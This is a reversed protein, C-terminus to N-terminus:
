KCMTLVLLGVIILFQLVVLILLCKTKSIVMQTTPYEVPVAAQGTFELCSANADEENIFGKYCCNPYGSVQQHCTAWKAYVGPKRGRYVVYWTM